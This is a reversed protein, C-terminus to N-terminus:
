GLFPRVMERLMEAADDLYERTPSSDLPVFIVPVFGIVEWRMRSPRDTVGLAIHTLDRIGVRSIARALESRWAADIGLAQEDTVSFDAYVGWTREGRGSREKELLQDFISEFLSPDDAWFNGLAIRDYAMRLRKKLLVRVAIARWSFEPHSPDLDNLARAIEIRGASPMLGLRRYFINTDWRIPQIEITTSVAFAAQDGVKRPRPVQSFPPQRSAALHKRITEPTLVGAKARSEIKKPPAKLTQEILKRATENM